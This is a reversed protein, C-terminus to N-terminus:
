KKICPLLRVTNKSRLKQNFPQLLPFSNQINRKLLLLFLQAVLVWAVVGALEVGLLIALLLGGFVKALQGVALAVTISRAGRAVARGVHAPETAVSEPADGRDISM